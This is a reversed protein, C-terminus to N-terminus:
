TKLAEYTLLFIINAIIWTVNNKVFNSNTSRVKFQTMQKM